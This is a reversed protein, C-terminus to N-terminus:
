TEARVDGVRDAALRAVDHYDSGLILRAVERLWAALLVPPLVRVIDPVFPRATDPPRDPYLRRTRGKQTCNVPHRIEVTSYQADVRAHPAVGLGGQREMHM